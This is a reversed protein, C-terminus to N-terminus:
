FREIDFKSTKLDALTIDFQLTAHFLTNIIATKFNLFIEVGQGKMGKFGNVIIM